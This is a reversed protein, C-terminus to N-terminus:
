SFSSELLAFTEDDEAWITIEVMTDGQKRLYTRETGLLDPTSWVKYTHSGLVVDPRPMFSLDGSGGSEPEEGALEGILTFLSTMATVPAQALEMYKEEDYNDGTETELRSFDSIEIIVMNGPSHSAMMDMWPDIKNATELLAEMETLMQEAVAVFPLVEQPIEEEGGELSKLESLTERAGGMIETMDMSYVEQYQGLEAEEAFTWDEPATFTINAYENRYINGTVEGARSDRPVPFQETGPEPEPSEYGEERSTERQPPPMMALSAEYEELARLAQEKADGCGSFVAMAALAVALLILFGRLKTM